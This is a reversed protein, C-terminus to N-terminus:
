LTTVSTAGPASFRVHCIYDWASLHPSQLRRHKLHPEYACNCGGEGLCGPASMRQVMYTM